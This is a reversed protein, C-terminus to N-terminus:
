TANPGRAPVSYIGWYTYIGCKADQFWMPAPHIRLSNWSPQYTM